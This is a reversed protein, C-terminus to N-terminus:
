LIKVKAEEYYGRAAPEEDAVGVAITALPVSTVGLVKQMMEVRSEVPYTGCWCTGYGLEKAALLLNQVAAGCDQPWYEHGRCANQSLDPRGCVVIALPATKLMGSSPIAEMIQEQVEKSKVVVFEWPRSNCASPAMMAAELMQHIHEDSVPMDPNYKRISRRSKITEITNMYFVEENQEIAANNCPNM